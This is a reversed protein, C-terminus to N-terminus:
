PTKRTDIETDIGYIERAPGATVYGDALDRHIADEDREAPPGYGGAGSLRYSLVDGREIERAEKSALREAAGGPNLVTEGRAGPLGGALGPPAHRHRDGSLSVM